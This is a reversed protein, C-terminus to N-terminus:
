GGLALILGIDAPTGPAGQPGTDGKAALLDWNTTDTAPNGPTTGAVKRVYASGNYEVADGVVYATTASWLGTWAMGPEGQPGPPGTNGIPGIPGQPGTMGHGIPWAGGSKPGYVIWSTDDIWFDGDHGDAALPARSGSLLQATGAAEANATAVMWLEGLDDFQVLVTDGAQPNGVWKILHKNQGDDLGLVRVYVSDANSAPTNTITAVWPRDTTDERPHRQSEIFENEYM